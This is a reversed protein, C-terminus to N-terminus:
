SRPDEDPHDPGDPRDPGDPDDPGDPGDPDGPGDPGDPDDPAPEGGAADETRDGGPPPEDSGDEQAVSPTVELAASLREERWLALVLFAFGVTIASDAVNFRPFTGWAVFDVVFGSGFVEGGPRFLRDLVNGVAGSLLMGFATASLATPARPLIRGVLALVGVTVLLFVWHPLPLGFAGGPNYILQWGIHDGLWPVFVGPTLLAEALEKTAQDLVVLGAAVSVGIATAHPHPPLAATTADSGGPGSPEPPPTSDETM